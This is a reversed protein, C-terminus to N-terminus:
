SVIPVLDSWFNCGLGLHSDVSSFSTSSVRFREKYWDKNYDKSFRDKFSTKFGRSFSSLFSSHKLLCCESRPRSWLVCILPIEWRSSNYVCWPHYVFVIWYGGFYILMLITSIYVACTTYWVYVCVHYHFLFHIENEWFKWFKKIM